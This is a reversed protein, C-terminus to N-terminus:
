ENTLEMRRYIKPFIKYHLLYAVILTGLGIVLFSYSMIKIPRTYIMALHLLYIELSMGGFIRLIKNLVNNNLCELFIAIWICFAIGFAFYYIRFCHWNIKHFSKDNFMCLAIIFISLSLFKEYFNLTKNEYVYRGVISGLLFVPIRTLAIEIKSYAKLDCELLIYLLIYIFLICFFCKILFHKSNAIKFILPYLFYLPVILAIFWFVQRGEAWFSYLLLDNIYTHIYTPNIFINLICYVISISFYPILLRKLRKKYFVLTNEKSKKYSYYLGMGSLLLFIDVGLNGHTLLGLLESLVPLKMLKQTLLHFILIWLASLGMIETRYKSM